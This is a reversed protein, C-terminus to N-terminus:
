KQRDSLRENLRDTLSDAEGHACARFSFSFHSKRM